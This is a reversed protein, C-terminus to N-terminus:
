MEDALSSTGEFVDQEIIQRMREPEELMPSHASEQFTYFGKVPAELAEDFPKRM